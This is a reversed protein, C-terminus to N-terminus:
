FRSEADRLVKTWRICGQESLNGDKLAEKIAKILPKIEISSLDPNDSYNFASPPMRSFVEDLDQDEKFEMGQPYTVQQKVLGQEIAWETPNGYEDIFGEKVLKQYVQERSLKIGQKKLFKQAQRVLTTNM